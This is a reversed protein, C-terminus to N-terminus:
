NQDLSSNFDIGMVYADTNSSEVTQYKTQYGKSWGSFYYMEDNSSGRAHVIANLGSYM